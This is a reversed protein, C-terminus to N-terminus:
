DINTHHICVSRPTLLFLRVVRVTQLAPQFCESQAKSIRCKSWYNSQEGIFHSVYCFRHFLLWVQMADILLLQCLGVLDNRATNITTELLPVAQAQVRVLEGRMKECDISSTIFYM